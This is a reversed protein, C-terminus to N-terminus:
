FEITNEFYGMEKPPMTNNSDIFGQLEGEYASMARAFDEKDNGKLTTKTIKVM